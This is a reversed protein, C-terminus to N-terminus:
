AYKFSGEKSLLTLSSVSNTEPNFVENKPISNLPSINYQKAIHNILSISASTGLIIGTGTALKKQDIQSFGQILYHTGLAGSYLQFLNAAFNTIKLLPRDNKHINYLSFATLIGAYTNLLKDSRLSGILIGSFFVDSSVQYTTPKVTMSSGKNLFFM